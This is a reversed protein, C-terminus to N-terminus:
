HESEPNQIETCAFFPLHQGTDPPILDALVAHIERAMRRTMEESRKEAALEEKTKRAPHYHRRGRFDRDSLPLLEDLSRIQAGLLPRLRALAETRKCGRRNGLNRCYWDEFLPSLKELRVTSRIAELGKREHCLRVTVVWDYLCAHRVTYLNKVQRWCPPPCFVAWRRPRGSAPRALLGKRGAQRYARWWRGVSRVSTDLLDAVESHAMGKRLLRLAQQRRQELRVRNPTV